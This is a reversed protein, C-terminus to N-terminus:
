RARVTDPGSISSLFCDTVSRKHLAKCLNLYLKLETEGGCCRPGYGRGSEKEDSQAWEKRVSRKQHIRIKMDAFKKLVCLLGAARQFHQASDDDMAKSTQLRRV